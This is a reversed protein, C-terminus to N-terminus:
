HGKSLADERQFLKVSRGLGANRYEPRVALM